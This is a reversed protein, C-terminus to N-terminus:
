LLMGYSLAAVSFIGSITRIAHLRNWRKAYTSRVAALEKDAAHYTDVKALRDNLPVNGTMTVGFMGLAYFLTAAAFLMFRLSSFDGGYAFTVFPLFALPLLFVSLFLPNQIVVNIHQMARIYDRDKLKGLAGNVSTAYGFFVGTSLSALLVTITLTVIEM